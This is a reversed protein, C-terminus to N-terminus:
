NPITEPRTSKHNQMTKPHTEGQHKLEKHAEPINMPYRQMVHEVTKMEPCEKDNLMSVYLTMNAHLKCINTNSLVNESFYAKLHRARALYMSQILDDNHKMIASANMDQDQLGSNTM